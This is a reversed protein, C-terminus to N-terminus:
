VVLQQLAPSVLPAVLALARPQTAAQVRPVRPVVALGAGHGGGPGPSHALAGLEAPQGPMVSGLHRRVMIIITVSRDKLNRYIFLVVIGKM